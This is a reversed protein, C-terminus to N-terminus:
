LFGELLKIAGIKRRIPKHKIDQFGVIPFHKGVVISVWSTLDQVTLTWDRKGVSSLDVILIPAQCVFRFLYLFVPDSGIGAM